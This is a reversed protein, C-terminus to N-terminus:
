QHDAFYWHLTPAQDVSLFNCSDESSFLTQDEMRMLQPQCIKVPFARSYNNYDSIQIWNEMTNSCSSSNSGNPGLSYELKKHDQDKTVGNISDSDSYGDKCSKAYYNGYISEHHQHNHHPHLLLLQEAGKYNYNNNNNDNEQHFLECSVKSHDLGNSEHGSFPSQHHDEKVSQSSEESETALKTNLQRVKKTLVDNQKQLAEYSFKLSDYNAKLLNYDKELQKTKWRARRNQFWIAVQRPQLGLEDALKSKREPELKNEMEFYRELAKVQNSSLRRKKGTYEENCDEQDLSDLMAQFEKSYGQNNKTEKPQSITVLAGLSDSSNFRKM